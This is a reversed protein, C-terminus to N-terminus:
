AKATFHYSRAAAWFIGACEPRQAQEMFQALANRNIQNPCGIQIALGGPLAEGWRFVVEAAQAFLSPADVPVDIQCEREIFPGRGLAM